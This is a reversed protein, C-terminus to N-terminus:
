ESLSSMEHSQVAVSSTVESWNWIDERIMPVIALLVAPSLACLHAWVGASVAAELSVAYFWTLGIRVAWHFGGIAGPTPIAAGLMILTVLWVGGLPSVSPAFPRIMVWTALGSLVWFLVSIGIYGAIHALDLMQRIGRGLQIVFAIGRRVWRPGVIQREWRSFVILGVVGLLVAGFVFLAGRLVHFIARQSTTDLAVFHGSAPGWGLFFILLGILVGLDVTRELAVSSILHPLRIHPYRRHVWVARVIEGLRGPLVTNVGFGIINGWFADWVTVQGLPRLLWAWRWGRMIYITLGALWGMLLSEWTAQAFATRVRTWDVGWLFGVLLLGALGLSLWFRWRLLRM